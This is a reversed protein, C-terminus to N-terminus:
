DNIWSEGETGSLLDSFMCFVHMNDERYHPGTLSSRYLDAERTTTHTHSVPIDPYIVYNLPCFQAGKHNSLYLDFQKAWIKWNKPEFKDPKIQPTEM